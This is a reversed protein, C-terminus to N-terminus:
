AVLDLLADARIIRPTTKESVDRNDTVGDPRGRQGERQREFEKQGRQAQAMSGGLNYNVQVDLKELKV